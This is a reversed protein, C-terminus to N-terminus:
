FIRFKLSLCTLTCMRIYVAISLHTHTLTHIGSFAVAHHSHLVDRGRCNQQPRYGCKFKETQLERKGLLSISNYPVDYAFHSALNFARETAWCHIITGWQKFNCKLMDKSM